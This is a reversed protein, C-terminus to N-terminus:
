WTYGQSDEENEEIEIDRHMQEKRFEASELEARRDADEHKIRCHRCEGITDDMFGGVKKGCSPCKDVDGAPPIHSREDTAGRGEDDTFTGWHHTM